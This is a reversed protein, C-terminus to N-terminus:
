RKVPSVVVQQFRNGIRNSEICNIAAKKLIGRAYQGSLICRTFYEDGNEDRKRNCPINDSDIFRSYHVIIWEAPTLGEGGAFGAIVSNLAKFANEEEKLGNWLATLQKKYDGFFERVATKGKRSADNDFREVDKVVVPATIQNKEIKKM